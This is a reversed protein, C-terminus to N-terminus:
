LKRAVEYREVRPPETLMSQTEKGFTKYHPTERHYDIASLDAWEELMVFANPDKADGYLHYSINGEEAKSGTMVLDAQTLFQDRYEPVVTIFAHIIIM